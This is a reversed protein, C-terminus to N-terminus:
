HIEAMSELTDPYLESNGYKRSLYILIAASDRIIPGDDDLVPVKHLPNLAIFGEDFQDLELLNIDIREYELGLYSLMM